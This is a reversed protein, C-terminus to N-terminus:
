HIWIEALYKNDDLITTEFKHNHPYILELRRKLNKLGIGGFKDKNKPSLSIWNIVRFHIDNDILIDVSVFPIAAKKDGHKIANEVLPIFLMPAILKGPHKNEIKVSILQDGFRLKQLEIFDVLYNIEKEVTVFDSTAEYTIYRLIESLRIISESAKEPNSVILSDINNLTNFIFHPNLQSRLLALESQAQENELKVKDKQKQIWLKALKIGAAFVVIVYTSALLMYMDFQFFSIEDMREPLYIPIYIFYTILANLLITIFALVIFLFSFLLYKRAIFFRPLLFYLTVYTAFVDVPIFYFTRIWIQFFGIDTNVSVLVSYFSIYSLWFIFHVFIRHLKNKYELFFM